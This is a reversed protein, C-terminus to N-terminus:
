LPFSLTFPLFPLYKALHFKRSNFNDEEKLIWKQNISQTLSHNNNLALEAIKWSYVLITCATLPPSSDYQSLTYERPLMLWFCRIPPTITQTSAELATSRPNSGWDPWVLSWVIPIQQKEALCAANRLFLLSQNARFWFLTDSHLSM